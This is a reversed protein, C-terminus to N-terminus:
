GPRTRGPGSWGGWPRRRTVPPSRRGCWRRARGVSFRSISPTGGTDAHLADLRDPDAGTLLRATEVRTLPAPRLETCRCSALAVALRPPCGASRLAGAILVAGRPPHRLLYGLLDVSAADAWQLDDLALVVPALGSLRSRVADPVSLRDVSPNTAVLERFVSYPDDREFETARGDLVRCRAARARRGLASLLATKGIGPEGTILVAGGTGSVFRDVATDLAALEADRGVLSM